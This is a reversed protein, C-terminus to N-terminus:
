KLLIKVDRVFDYSLVNGDAARIKVTKSDLSIIQGYIVQGDQLTIGKIDKYTSPTESKSHNQIIDPSTTRILMMPYPAELDKDKSYYYAGSLRNNKYNLKAMFYPTNASMLVMFLTNGSVMGKITYTDIIGTVDRGQQELSAAGWCSFFVGACGTGNKNSHIDQWDGSVDINAKDNGAKEMLWSDVEQYKLACGNFIAVCIVLCVWQFIISKKM